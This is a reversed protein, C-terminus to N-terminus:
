AELLENTQTVPEPDHLNGYLEAIEKSFDLLYDFIEDNSDFINDIVLKMSEKQQKFKVRAQHNAMIHGMLVTFKEQYFEENEGRPLILFINQRQIIIRDFLARSAYYKLAALDFLRRMELPPSGFRDSIEEKIDELDNLTSISLLTTYFNLRDAQDAMYAKPIGLEFFTDITPETRMVKQPLTKFVEQYEERKLEEVAEDIMKMYLDFGVEDIFGSQATGLLNGAGRIELDRMSLNFGSGLDSYEEVARLRKLSKKSLASLSPVLFFAYAQRDSRGVRGRLQHLEALGFRDARNVIITNVNPIDIGSEIIKTSLLVDYKRELFGHIVNELQAPKMQGHAVAIRVEPMYKQLYSSFKEISRVRDHVIYIQGDRNLEAQVWQKVKKINFIEVKTYIPMRNPPPTTILSLDRAGLLSFNLTRPIPTATLTLTDVNLKMKRLKEKARVGFRHEEDIILLGLDHFEVDKSILRHTGILIDVKGALLDKLIEKQEARSQFRSMVKVTVPFQRLRDSFTNFHQEALITTPVLVAVQKSDQVVKFAARVAVETKGFGVDGCVLRDMPNRAELDEKVEVSVRAQDPTDEYRFSAELEKQWITDDRFSFGPTSKRKAYLEILDRALEKIKKKTKKKTKSWEPSGLQSLRPKVDDKASYKKVLHLYNLNVYVIGGQDFTLKMSEQDSEGIKITHLGSYRGIGYDEHVVFDGIKIKAFENKRSKKKKKQGPLRTRYPKNFIQYDTMVLLKQDRHYFGEKIPLTLIRIAGADILGALGEDFEILLERLRNSQLENETVIYIDTKDQAHQKLVSFLLAYNSKIVPAESLKLDVFNKADGAFVKQIIWRCQKSEILLQLEAPTFYDSRVPADLDEAPEEIEDEEPFEEDYLKEEVAPEEESVAEPKVEMEPLLEFDSKKLEQLNSEEAFVIPTDLYDFIDDFEDCEDMMERINGSLTVSDIIDISRQSEPDFYRISEIFDGDFEVRVPMRETYSWFDIIAGRKSFQGPEEVFKDQQYDFLNLTEILEDYLTEGAEINKMESELHDRAPLKLGLINYTSIVIIEDKRAIQTLREQIYEANFKTIPACSRDFGLLSLEVFTENVQQVTPLLLLIQGAHRLMDAVFLSRTSGTLTSCHMVREGDLYRGRLTRFGDLNQITQQLDQANM